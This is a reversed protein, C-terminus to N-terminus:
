KAHSGGVNKFEAAHNLVKEIRLAYHGNLTGPRCDFLPIGDVSATVLEPVDLALVDGPRMKLVQKLSAHITALRAIMEVEASQVQHSLMGVWRKDVEGPDAQGIATLLDRVPELAGYPLCIHLGGSAYTLDIDFRSTIVIDSPAAIAAFQPQMESRVFELQLDYLPAWAAMYEHIVLEMVRAIIRQETPTFDRGEVRSHVKGSGGFMTEIMGFVLTPEIVVLAHGRLTKMQVLNLNTPLVLEGIFTSYKMARVPGVVLEPQRHMFNFLAMRVNRGFRENIIELAPMRGRVTRGQAGLDYKRVDGDAPGSQVKVEAEPPDDSFLSDVEDQTLVENM